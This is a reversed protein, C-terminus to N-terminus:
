PEDPPPAALEEADTPLAGLGARLETEPDEVTRGGFIRVAAEVEDDTLPREGDVLEDPPTTRRGSDAGLFRTELEETLRIRLCQERNQGADAM